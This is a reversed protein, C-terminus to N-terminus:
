ADGAPAGDSVPASKPPKYSQSRWIFSYVDMLDRPSHGAAVLQKQTTRAVELFRAYGMSSPSESKNASLGAIPAQQEFYTPKVCVHETPHYMAPFITALPWTLKKAKGDADAIHVADIFRDFRTGYDGTGHLLEGLAAVFSARDEPKMSGFAVAGEMPHVINTSQVVTKAAEFLEEPSATKFREPALQERALRLAAAKLGKKGKIDERGREEAIFREGEFGGTFEKEFWRLQEEFSAYTQAKPAAPQKAKSGKAPKKQAQSPRRGRLRADIASADEPSLAEARKLGQILPKKFIRKEGKEFLFVVRDPKDELVIGFGWDPQSENTFVVPKETKSV